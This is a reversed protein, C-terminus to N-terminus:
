VRGRGRRLPLLLPTSAPGLHEVLLPRRIRAPRPRGPAAGHRLLARRLVGGRRDPRAPSTAASATGRRGWGLWRGHRALHDLVVRMKGIDVTEFALPSPARLGPRRAGHRSTRTSTSGSAARVSCDTLRMGLVDTTFAPGEDLAASLCNVHGLKAPRRPSRHDLTPRAAAASGGRDGAAPVAGARRRSGRGRHYPDRGRDWRRGQGRSGRAEDLKCGPEARLRHVRAQDAGERAGSYDDGCALLRRAMGGDSRSVSSSRGALARALDAVAARTVLPATLRDKVGVGGEVGASLEGSFRSRARAAHERVLRM